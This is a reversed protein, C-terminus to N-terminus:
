SLNVSHPATVLKGSDMAFVESAGRFHFCLNRKYSDNVEGGWMGVVSMVRVNFSVAEM